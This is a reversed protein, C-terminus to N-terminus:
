EVRRLTVDDVWVSGGPANTGEVLQIGFLALAAADPARAEDISFAQWSGKDLAPGWPQSAERSLERGDAARWVIVLKGEVDGTMPEGASNRVFAEFAYREGASVGRSFTLAQSAGALGQAAMRLGQAGTRAAEREATMSSFRSAIFSWRDPVSGDGDAPEEFGPNPALNAADAPPAAHLPAAGLAAVLWWGMVWRRM